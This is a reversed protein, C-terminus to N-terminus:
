IRFTNVSPFRPSKSRIPAPPPTCYTYAGRRFFPLLVEAMVEDYFLSDAASAVFDDQQLTNETGGGEGSSAKGHCSFLIILPLLLLLRCM